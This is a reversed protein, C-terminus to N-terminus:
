QICGFFCYEWFYSIVGVTLYVTNIRINARCGKTLIKAIIEEQDPLVSDVEM